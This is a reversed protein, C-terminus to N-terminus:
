KKPFLNVKDWLMLNAMTVVKKARQLQHPIPSTYSPSNTSPDLANPLAAERHMPNYPLMGVIPTYEPSLKAKPLWCVLKPKITAFPWAILFSEVRIDFSCVGWGKKRKLRKVTERDKLREDAV